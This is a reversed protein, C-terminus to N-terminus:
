SALRMFANSAISKSDFCQPKDGVIIVKANDNMKAGNIENIEGIFSTALRYEVVANSQELQRAINENSLVVVKFANRKLAEGFRQLETEAINKALIFCLNSM